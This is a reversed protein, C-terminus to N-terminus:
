KNKYKKQLANLFHRLYQDLFDRYSKHDPKRFFASLEHKSIKKDILTLMDLIDDSKLNLAIKLKKLIMNNSLPDEAEPLPGERKGRKEIILGNLFTALEKDTIEILLPDDERKLWDSLDARSVDHNALKFLTIMKSDSYDFMYRVRRLIDNNTM